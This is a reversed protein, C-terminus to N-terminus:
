RWGSRNRRQRRPQHGGGRRRFRARDPNGAGTGAFQRADPGPRRRGRLHPRVGQPLDRLPAHGKRFRRAHAQPQRAAPGPVPQHAFLRPPPAPQANREPDPVQQSRVPAGTKRPRGRRRGHAQGRRPPRHRHRANGQGDRAAPRPLVADMWAKAPADYDTDCDQRALVRRAGLAALREDLKRGCGCFDEYNRDGLALVSYRLNELRPFTTRRSSTWSGPPTTPRTARAGPARSSSCTPSRPCNPPTTSRWTWCGPRSAARNRPRPRSRKRWARPTAPRAASSCSCRCPRRPWAPGPDPRAPGGPEAAAHLVPGGSLRQAMPAAGRQLARHRPHVPRPRLTNAEMLLSRDPAASRPAAATAAIDAPAVSGGARPLIETRTPPVGPLRKRQHSRQGGRGPRFSRELAHAGLLLGAAHEDSPRAPLRLEGRRSTVRLPDGEGVGLAAADEANIELFPGPNLKNLSPVKGTKTRTHWQHAVRGTLLVFPFRRRADRRQAPLAAGLVARAREGHPFAARRGAHRLAAQGGGRRGGAFAAVDARGRAGAARPEIGRLDYGSRANVSGRMEDFIEGADRYPFAAGFGMRRAVESVLWWDPRADVPPLVARPMFTVMRSSNTMTGERRRGCRAPCSCTRTVRPKRPIIPTRCSSSSRGSWGAGCAPRPQAAHGRPNSGIIWLAKIEGREMAHFLEVAPPGPRPRSAARRAIEVVGRDGRPGARLHVTRQGPLGGSMYGVERGGMANPQGTLSFPGSGPQGIQGTALHLNCIANVNWTGRASQNLGMTWLSMWRPCDALIKAGAILDDVSLGTIEAVRAPPYADIVEGMREWGETHRAIFDHDVRGMKVLLHLWGNLLALDTGPGCRCTSRRGPPPPPAARTWSSSNRGPTQVRRRMRQHLIPHCDAMNSGIVLFGDAHEFDEYHGPPGDAGLSLKYGSAASAMCLRSNSDINNTRLFGKALKNAVYQAETSLQGSVYLAM